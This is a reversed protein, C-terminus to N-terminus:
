AGRGGHGPAARVAEVDSEVRVTRGILRGGGELTVNWTLGWDERNLEGSASFVARQDGRADTVTGRYRVRLRVTGTVGAMTLQGSVEAERGTWRIRTSRFTATPHREADFHAVGRLREDRASSGSVVSALEIVAEVSSASPDEAIRVLGSRLTFRGRVRALGLRRIRFGVHAHDPDLVWIGAAPM